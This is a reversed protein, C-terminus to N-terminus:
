YVGLCNDISDSVFCPDMDFVTRGLIWGFIYGYVVGIRTVISWKNCHRACSYMAIEFLILVFVVLILSDTFCSLVIGLIISSIIQSLPSYEVSCFTDNWTM